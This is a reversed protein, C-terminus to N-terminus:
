ASDRVIIGNTELDIYAQAIGGAVEADDFFLEASNVECDRVLVVADQITVDGADTNAFLVANAADSTGNLFATIVNTASVCVVQGAKLATAGAYTGVSRSRSVGTAGSTAESVIFAGDHAGELIWPSAM